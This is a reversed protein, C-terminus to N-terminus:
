RGAHGERWGGRGGSRGLCRRRCGQHASLAMALPRGIFALIPPGASIPGPPVSPLGVPGLPPRQVAVWGYGAIM